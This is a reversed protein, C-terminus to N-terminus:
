AKLRELDALICSWALAHHATGELHDKHVVMKVAVADLDPAPMRMLGLAADRPPGYYCESEDELARYAEVARRYATPESDRHLRAMAEAENAWDMPGLDYWADCLLKRRRYEHYAEDWAIRGCGASMVGIGPAFPIAVRM